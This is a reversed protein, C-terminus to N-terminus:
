LTGYDKNASITLDGVKVNKTPEGNYTHCEAAAGGILKDIENQNEVKSVKFDALSLRKTTNM